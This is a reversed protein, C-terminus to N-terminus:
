QGQPPKPLQMWRPCFIGNYLVGNIVDERRQWPLELIIDVIKNALADDDSM